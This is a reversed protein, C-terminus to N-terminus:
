FWPSYGDQPVGAEFDGDDYIIDAEGTPKIYSITGPFYEGGGDYEAWVPSGAHLVPLKKVSSWPVTKVTAHLEHVDRGYIAIDVTEEKDDVYAVTALFRIADRRHQSTPFYVVEEGVTYTAEVLPKTTWRAMWDKPAYFKSAIPTVTRLAAVAVIRFGPSSRIPKKEAVPHDLVFRGFLKSEFSNLFGLSTRAMSTERSYGFRADGLVFQYEKLLEYLSGEHGVFLAKQVIEDRFESDPYLWDGTRYDQYLIRGGRSLIPEMVADILARLFVPPLDKSYSRYISGGGNAEASSLFLQNGPHFELWRNYAGITKADLRRGFLVDRRNPLTISGRPVAPDAGWTSEVPPFPRMLMRGETIDRAYTQHRVYTLVYLTMGVVIGVTGLIGKAGGWLVSLGSQGRARQVFSLLLVCIAFAASVQINTKLAFQWIKAITERIYLQWADNREMAITGDLWAPFGARDLVNLFKLLDESQCGLQNNAIRM